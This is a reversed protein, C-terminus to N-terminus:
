FIFKLKDFENFYVDNKTLSTKLLKKQLDQLTKM